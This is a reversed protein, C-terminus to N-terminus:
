GIRTRSQERWKEAGGVSIDDADDDFRMAGMRGSMAAEFGSGKERSRYHYTGDSWESTRSFTWSGGSETWRADVPASGIVSGEGHGGNSVTLTGVLTAIGKKANVTLAVAGYEASLFRTGLHECGNPDPEPEHEVYYGHGGGHGPLVGDPCEYDEVYGFVGTFGAQQYVGLYGVHVDGPLPLEDSQPEREVWNVWAQQRSTKSSYRDPLGASAPQPLTLAAPLLASLVIVPRATSRNM